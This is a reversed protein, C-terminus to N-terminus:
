LGRQTQPKNKEEELIVKGYLVCLSDATFFVFLVFFVTSSSKREKGIGNNRQTEKHERHSFWFSDAVFFVFLV